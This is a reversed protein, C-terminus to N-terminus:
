AIIAKHLRQRISVQVYARWATPHHLSNWLQVAVTGLEACGRATSRLRRHAEQPVHDARVAQAALRLAQQGAGGAAGGDDRWGEGGRPRGAAAAQTLGGGRGRPLRSIRRM